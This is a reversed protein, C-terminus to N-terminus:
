GSASAESFSTAPPTGSRTTSRRSGTWTWFLTALRLSGRARVGSGPRAPGHVPGPEALGTLSDHYAQQMAARTRGDTVALSVQEAFVQLIQQDRATYVRDPRHSGVALAGVMTSKDHVPAAMGARIARASEPPM